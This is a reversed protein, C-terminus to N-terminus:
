IGYLRSEAVIKRIKRLEVEYSVVYTFGTLFSPAKFGVRELIFGTLSTDRVPDIKIMGAM